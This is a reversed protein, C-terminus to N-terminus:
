PWRAFSSKPTARKMSCDRCPQRRTSPAELIGCVVFVQRAFRGITRSRCARGDVGRLGDAAVRTERRGRCQGVSLGVRAHPHPSRVAHVLLDQAGPLLGKDLAMQYVIDYATVFNQIEPAFDPPGVVVRAGSVEPTQGTAKLRVTATVPGEATDDFWGDNDAFDKLARTAQRCSDPSVEERGAGDATRDRDRVSDRGLASANRPVLRHRLHGQDSQRLRVASRSRHDASRRGRRNRNSSQAAGVTGLDQIRDGESQGPSGDM